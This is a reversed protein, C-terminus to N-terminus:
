VPATRSPVRRLATVTRRRGARGRTGPAAADGVPQARTPSWIARMATASSTRSREPDATRRTRSTRRSRGSRAARRATGTARHGVAVRPAPDHDDAVQQAIARMAASATGPAGSHTTKATSTARRGAPAATRRRGCRATRRRASRRASRRRCRASAVGDALGALSSPKTARRRGPRRQDADVPRQEDVRRGEHRDASSSSRCTRSRATLLSPASGSPSRGAPPLRDGAEGQEGSVRPQATSSPQPSSLAVATMAGSPSATAMASCSPRRAARRRAHQRRATGAPKRSPEHSTRRAAPRAGPAATGPARRRQAAHRQQEGGSTSSTTTRIARQPDSAPM